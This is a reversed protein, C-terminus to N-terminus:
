KKYFESNYRCCPDTLRFLFVHGMDSITVLTADPIAQATAIGHELPLAPDKEGHIVLTPIHITHLRDKRPASREIAWAHNYCALVNSTRKMTLNVFDEVEQEDYPVDGNFAHWAQILAQASEQDNKPPTLWPKRM